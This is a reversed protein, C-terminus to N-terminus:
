LNILATITFYKNERCNISVGKAKKFNIDSIHNSWDWHQVWFKKHKVQEIFVKNIKIQIKFHKHKARHFVMFHTKPINLTLKNALILKNLKTLEIPM